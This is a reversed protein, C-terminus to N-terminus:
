ARVKCPADGVIGPLIVERQCEDGVEAGEVVRGKIVHTVPVAATTGPMRIVSSKMAVIMMMARARGSRTRSFSSPLTHTPSSLLWPTLSHPSLAAVTLTAPSIGM